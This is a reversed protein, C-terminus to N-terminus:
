KLVEQAAPLSLAEDFPTSLTSLESAINSFRKRFISQGGKLAEVMVRKADRQSSLQQRLQCVLCHEVKNSDPESWANCQCVECCGYQGILRIVEDRERTVTALQSQLDLIHRTQLVSVKSNIEAGRNADVLFKHKSRLEKELKISRKAALLLQQRASESLQGFFSFTELESIAKALENNQNM